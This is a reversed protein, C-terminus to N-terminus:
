NPRTTGKADNFRTTNHAFLADADAANTIRPERPKEVISWLVKHM